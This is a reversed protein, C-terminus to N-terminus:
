CHSMLSFLEARREDGGRASVDKVKNLLEGGVLDRAEVCVTALSTLTSISPQMFYWMKQLTLHGSRYQHELQAVLLSYEKLLERM